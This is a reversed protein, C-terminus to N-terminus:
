NKIKFKRKYYRVVPNYNPFDVIKSENHGPFSGIKGFRKYRYLNTGAEMKLMKLDLPMEFEKPDIELIYILEKIAKEVLLKYSLAITAGWYKVYIHNSDLFPAIRKIKEEDSCDYMEKSFAYAKRIASNKVNANKSFAYELIAIIDQSEM